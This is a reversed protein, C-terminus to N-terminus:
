GVRVIEAFRNYRDAVEKKTLAALRDLGFSEITFSAIITGHAIAQQIAPFDIRGDKTHSAALHGMMGGAFTDGAGTPDIVKESPFAPLAAVGERHVLVAGHEGKKIVVFKPGMDLIRKGATFVNRTGTLMGEQRYFHHRHRVEHLLREGVFSM